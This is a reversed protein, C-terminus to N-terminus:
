GNAMDTTNEIELIADRRLAADDIAALLAASPGVVFFELDARLFSAAASWLIQLGATGIREVGGAGIRVGEHAALRAALDDRLAQSAAADVIIPLEVLQARM